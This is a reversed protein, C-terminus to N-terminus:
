RGPLFSGSIRAAGRAINSLLVIDLDQQAATESASADKDRALPEHLAAERTDPQASLDAETEEAQDAAPEAADDKRDAQTEEPEPLAESVEEEKEKKPPVVLIGVLQSVPVTTQRSGDEGLVVYTIEGGRM